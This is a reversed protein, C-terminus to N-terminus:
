SVAGALRRRQGQRDPPRHVPGAPHHAAPVPHRGGHLQLLQVRHRQLDRRGQEGRHRGPHRGARHGEAPQHLREAAPSHDDPGGAAPDRVAAGDVTVPRAVAGRRGPEPARLQPRGPLGRLRLRLLVAGARRGRVRRGVPRVRVDPQPRAGRIGAGPHGPHPTDRPVRGRVGHQDRSAPVHGARHVPPDGRHGARARPDASGRHPVDPHEALAGRRGLLLGAESQRDAVAVHRAPQLVHAPGAQQGPRRPVGRRAGRAGRDHQRHVARGGPAHEDAQAPRARVM